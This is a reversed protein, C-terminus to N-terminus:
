SRRRSMCMRVLNFIVNENKGEPIDKEEKLGTGSRGSRM